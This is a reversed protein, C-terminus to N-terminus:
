LRRFHGVFQYGIIVLAGLMLPYRFVFVTQGIIQMSWSIFLDFGSHSIMAIGAIVIAVLILYRAVADPRM